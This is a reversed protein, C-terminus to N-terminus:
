GFSGMVEGRSIYLLSRYNRGKAQAEERSFARGDCSWLWIRLTATRWTGSVEELNWAGLDGDRPKWEQWKRCQESSGGEPRKINKWCEWCAQVEPGKCRRNETGLISKRLIWMTWEKGEQDQSLTAKEWSRKSQVKLSAGEQRGEQM